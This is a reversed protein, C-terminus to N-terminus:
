GTKLQTKYQLATLKSFLKNVLFPFEEIKPGLIRLKYDLTTEFWSHTNISSTCNKPWIVSQNSVSKHMLCGISQDLDVVSKKNSDKLFLCAVYANFSNLVNNQLAM